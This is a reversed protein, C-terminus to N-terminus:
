FIRHGIKFKYINDQYFRQYDVGLVMGGKLQWDFGVDFSKWDTWSQGTNGFMVYMIVQNKYVPKVVETEVTVVKKTEKTVDFLTYKDFDIWKLKGITKIRFPIKFDSTTLTDSYLREYIEPCPTDSDMIEEGAAKFHTKDYQQYVLFSDIARPIHRVEPIPVFKDPITDTTKVTVEYAEISAKKWATLEAIESKQDKITGKFDKRDSWWFILIALIIVTSLGGIIKTIM